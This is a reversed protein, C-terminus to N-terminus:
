FILFDVCSMHVSNSYSKYKNNIQALSSPSTVGFKIKYRHLELLLKIENNYCEM